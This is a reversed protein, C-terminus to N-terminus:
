QWDGRNADDWGRKTWFVQQQRDEETEKSRFFAYSQSIAVALERPFGVGAMFVGVAYNASHRYADYFVKDTADRQYDFAGEQTVSNIIASVDTPATQIGTAYVRKFDAYPPAMLFGTTSHLDDILSGDPRTVEVADRPLDTITKYRNGKDTTYGRGTGASRGETLTSGAAGESSTWQGSERGSGAPVRPQNEDYKSLGFQVPNLGLERALERPAVGADILEAALSLRYAADEGIEPLGM